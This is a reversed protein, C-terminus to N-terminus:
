LLSYAYNLGLNVIGFPLSNDFRRSSFNCREVPVEVYQGLWKLFTDSRSRKIVLPIIVHALTRGITQSIVSLRSLYWFM